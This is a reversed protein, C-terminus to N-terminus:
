LKVNNHVYLLHLNNMFYYPTYEVESVLVRDQSPTYKGSRNASGSM